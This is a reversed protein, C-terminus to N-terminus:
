FLTMLFGANIHQSKTQLAFEEPTDFKGLFECKKFLPPEISRKEIDWLCFRPTTYGSGLM